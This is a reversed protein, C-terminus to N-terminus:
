VLHLLAFHNNYERVIKKFEMCHVEKSTFLNYLEAPSDCILLKVKEDSCCFGKSEKYFKCTKCHKCSTSTPLIFATSPINLGNFTKGLEYNLINHM